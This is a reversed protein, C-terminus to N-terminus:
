RDNKSIKEATGPHSLLEFAVEAIFVIIGLLPIAGSIEKIEIEKLERM